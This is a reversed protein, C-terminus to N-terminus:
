QAPSAPTLERLDAPIRQMPFQEQLRAIERRAAAQDGSDRLCRIYDLRLAGARDATAPETTSAPDACRDSAPVQAATVKASGASGLARAKEGRVEAPLRRPEAEDAPQGTEFAADRSGTGAPDIALRMVLGFSLLVIAAASLPVYWRQRGPEAHQADIGPRPGPVAERRHSSDNTARVVSGAQLADRAAHLIADDVRKDPQQNGLAAYARSLASGGRLYEALAAEDSLHKM